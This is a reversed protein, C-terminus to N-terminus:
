WTFEGQRVEVALAVVRGVAERAAGRVSEAIERRCKVALLTGQVPSRRVLLMWVGDATPEVTFLEDFLQEWTQAQRTM